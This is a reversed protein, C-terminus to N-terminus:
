RTKTDVIKMDRSSWIEYGTVRYNGNMAKNAQAKLLEIDDGGILKPPETGEFVFLRYEVM